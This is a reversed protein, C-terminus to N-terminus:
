PDMMEADRHLIEVHRDVRVPPEEPRHQLVARDNGVLADLSRRKADTLRPDLQQPRELAIRGDAAEQGAAARPHVVDRKRDRIEGSLEVPEAPVAHLQDVLLGADPEEPELDRENM